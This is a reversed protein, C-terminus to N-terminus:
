TIEVIIVEGYTEVLSLDFDNPVNVQIYPTGGFAGHSYSWNVIGKSELLNTLSERDVVQQLDFVGFNPNEIRFTMM